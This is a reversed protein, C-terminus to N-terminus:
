WLVEWDLRKQKWANPNDWPATSLIYLDYKKNLKNVSEISDKLPESVYFYPHEDYRDKYKKIDSKPLRKIGSKFDVINDM